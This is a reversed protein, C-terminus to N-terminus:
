HWHGASTPHPVGETCARRKRGQWLLFPVPCVLVQKWGSHAEPQCHPYPQVLRAPVCHRSGQSTGSSRAAVHPPTQAPTLCTFCPSNLVMWSWCCRRSLFISPNSIQILSLAQAPAWPDATVLLSETGDDGVLGTARAPDFSGKQPAATSPQAPSAGRGGQIGLNPGLPLQESCQRLRSHHPQPLRGPSSSLLSLIRCQALGSPGSPHLAPRATGGCGDACTATPGDGWQLAPQM